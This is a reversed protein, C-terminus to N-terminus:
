CTTQNSITESADKREEMRSHQLPHWIQVQGAFETQREVLRPLLFVFEFAESWINCLSM